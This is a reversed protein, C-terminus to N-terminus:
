NSTCNTQKVTGDWRLSLLACNREREQSTRYVTKFLLINERTPPIAFCWLAELCCAGERLQPAEIQVTCVRGERLYRM